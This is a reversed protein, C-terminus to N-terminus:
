SHNFFQSKLLASMEKRYEDAADAAKQAFDEGRGAFIVARSVNVLLGTDENAGHRTVELLSGGQAGVGPVLLFHDPIIQRIRTLQGARTAGTVYMINDSSGWQSTKEIIEEFLFKEHDGKLKLMEFDAAGENSTLALIISWKGAYELFPRLSDSGMYPHLTIADFDMKEFFARAYQRSTNGIDARKADAILFHEDPIHRVTEEMAEWGIAGLSEYFATNIKYSVCLDRTVDIIAKNFAVISEANKPLHPPLMDIDTDLGICLYSGKKRIQDTLYKKTMSLLGNNKLHRNEGPDNKGSKGFEM